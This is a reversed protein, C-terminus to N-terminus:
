IDEELFFPEGETNFVTFGERDTFYKSPGSSIFFLTEEDDNRGVYYAKEKDPYEDLIYEVGVVLDNREIAKM